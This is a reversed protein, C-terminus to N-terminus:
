VHARGIKLARISADLINPPTGFDPEGVTLGIVKRGALQLERVRMTAMSSPSPKIRDMRPAIFSM